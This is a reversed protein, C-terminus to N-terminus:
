QLIGNQRPAPSDARPLRDATIIGLMLKKAIRSNAGDAGIVVDVKLTKAIGQSGTESHDVYHITYPDTNNQPIDLKHVTTNILNARLQAARDRCLVM